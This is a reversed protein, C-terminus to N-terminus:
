AEYRKDLAFNVKSRYHASLVIYRFEQVTMGEDIIDNLFYYNGLSKSMKGGGVTLFESHM